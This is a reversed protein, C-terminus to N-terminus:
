LGFYDFLRHVASERMPVEDLYDNLVDSLHEHDVNEEVMIATLPLFSNTPHLLIRTGHMHDTEVWFSHFNSFPYHIDGVTIGRPTVFSSVVKPKRGALLGLVLGALLIFIGFLYNHFFFALVAGGITVIGLIWFWDKTHEVYNHAYDRWEILPVNEARAEM